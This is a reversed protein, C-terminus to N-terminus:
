YHFQYRRTVEGIFIGRKTLIDKMNAESICSKNLLPKLKEGVPLLTQCNLTMGM